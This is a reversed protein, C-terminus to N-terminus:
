SKRTEAQRRSADVFDNFLRQHMEIHGGLREPHWQVGVAFPHHEHEVAEPIGEESRGTVRLGPAVVDLSQHHHSNVGIVTEGAARAVHSDAELVVMHTPIGTPVSQAHHISGLTSPIDQM